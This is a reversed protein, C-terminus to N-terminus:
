SARARRSSSSTETDTLRELLCAALEPGVRTCLRGYAPTGESGTLREVLELHALLRRNGRMTSSGSDDPKSDAM